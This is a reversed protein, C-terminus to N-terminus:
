MFGTSLLPTTTVVQNRGIEEYKRRKALKVLGELYELEGPIRM